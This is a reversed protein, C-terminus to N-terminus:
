NTARFDRLDYDHVQVLYACESDILFNVAQTGPMGNIKLECLDLMYKGRVVLEGIPCSFSVLVRGEGRPSVKLRIGPVSDFTIKQRLSNVVMKYAIDYIAMRTENM